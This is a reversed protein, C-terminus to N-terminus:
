SVMWRCFGPHTFPCLILINQLTSTLLSLGLDPFPAQSPCGQLATMPFESAVPSVPYWLCWPLAPDVAYWLNFPMLIVQLSTLANTAPSCGATESAPPWTSDSHNFCVFEAQKGLQSQSWQWSFFVPTPFFWLSRMKICNFVHNHFSYICIGDLCWYPSIFM